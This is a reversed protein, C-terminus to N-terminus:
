YQLKTLVNTNVLGVYTGFKMIKRREAASIRPPPPIQGGGGGRSHSPTLLGPEKLTLGMSSLKIKSDCGNGMSGLGSYVHSLDEVPYFLPWEEYPVNNM